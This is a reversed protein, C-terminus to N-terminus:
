KKSKTNRTKSMRKVLAEVVRYSSNFADVPLCEYPGHCNLGGTFINPTPLGQSSLNSGDTGGRVRNLVVKVGADKFAKTCIDLIEQNQKLVEEMNSYQFKLDLDVRGQGYKNNLFEVASKVFDLRKKMGEDTFDRIIMKLKAREVEGEIGHVHYFGEEGRTNEPKEDRPLMSIFETALTIANVLNKYAVATHVATGHFNLIAGYANFTAVDLEGLETGDVTIGYDCAIDKVDLYRTSLGIEEDVSFIIKLPGHKLSSDTKLNRLLLLLCAIGAKDDAGLLTTGDTVIIDEGIHSSLEPCFSSTITLGNDLKIGEGSYKRVLRPKVDAGSCDPATDMHALLCLSKAKECGDSAPIKVTIVGHEDQKSDYGLESITSSLYAGFRLQGVSSPVTKSSGDARTDFAILDSFIKVLPDVGCLNDFDKSTGTQM